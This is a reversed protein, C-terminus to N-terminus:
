YQSHIQHPSSFFLFNIDSNGYETPKGGEKSPKKEGQLVQKVNKAEKM